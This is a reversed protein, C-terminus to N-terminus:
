FIMKIDNRHAMKHRCNIPLNIWNEKLQKMLFVNWKDFELNPDYDEWM